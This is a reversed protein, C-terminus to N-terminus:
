CRDTNLKYRIPRVMHADSNAETPKLNGLSRPWVHERNVNSGNEDFDSIKPISENTYCLLINNPNKPDVDATNYVEKLGGYSVFGKGNNVIRYLEDKLEKGKLGECSKYYDDVSKNGGRSAMDIVEESEFHKLRNESYKSDNPEEPKDPNSPVDPEEPKDPNTPVDPLSPKGIANCSGLGILVPILTNIMLLKLFTKKM